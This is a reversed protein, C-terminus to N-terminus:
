RRESDTDQFFAAGNLPSEVARFVIQGMGAAFLWQMDIESVWSIFDPTEVIRNGMVPM